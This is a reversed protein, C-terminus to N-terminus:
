NLEVCGIRGSSIERCTQQRPASVAVVAAEEVARAVDRERALNGMEFKPINGFCCLEQASDGSEQDRVVRSLVDDCHRAAQPLPINIFFDRAKEVNRAAFLDDFFAVRLHPLEIAPINGDHLLVATEFFAANARGDEAVRALKEEHALIIAGVQFVHAAVDAESFQRLVGNEGIREGVLLAAVVPKGAKGVEVGVRLVRDAAGRM